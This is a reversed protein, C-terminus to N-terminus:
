VAPYEHVYATMMKGLIEGQKVFSITEGNFLRGLLLGDIMAMVAIMLQRDQIGLVNAVQQRIQEVRLQFFPNSLVTERGQQQYFEIWLLWQKIFSEENRAVFDFALTIRESLHEVGEVEAAFRLLDQQNLEEILQEFLVEKSPFYHYLTGTSVGLEQAIQRMTIAAYGKQAFLNFCQSLLAKRYQDHDVVKPMCSVCVVSQIARM